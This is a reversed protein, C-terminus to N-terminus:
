SLYEYAAFWVPMDISSIIAVKIAAL